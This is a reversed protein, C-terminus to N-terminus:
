FLRLRSELVLSLCRAPHFTSPRGGNGSHDSGASKELSESPAQREETFSPREDNHARTRPFEGPGKRPKVPFKGKLQPSTMVEPTSSGLHPRRKIRVEIKALEAGDEAVM